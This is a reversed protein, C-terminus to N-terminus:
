NKVFKLGGDYNAALAAQIGTRIMLKEFEEYNEMNKVGYYLSIYQTPVDTVKPSTVDVNPNKLLQTYLLEYKETGYRFWIEFLMTIFDCVEKMSLEGFLDEMVEKILVHAGDTLDLSAHSLLSAWQQELAKTLEEPYPNNYQVIHVKSSADRAVVFTIYKLNSLM